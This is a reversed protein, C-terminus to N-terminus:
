HPPALRLIIAELRCIVSRLDAVGVTEQEILLLEIQAQRLKAAITALETESLTATMTTMAGTASSPRALGELARDGFISSKSDLGADRRVLNGNAHEDRHAM